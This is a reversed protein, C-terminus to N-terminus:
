IRESYSGDEYQYDLSIVSISGDENGRLKHLDGWGKAMGRKFLETMYAFANTTKDPDFNFWGKYMDLLGSQLCDMKDDQNLYSFKRQIGKGMKQFMSSAEHTLKGSNISVVMEIYLKKADIYNGSLPIDIKLKPKVNVKNKNYCPRCLGKTYVYGECSSCTPKVKPNLSRSLKTAERKLASFKDRLMNKNIKRCEPSCTVTRTVVNTFLNKCIKCSKVEM